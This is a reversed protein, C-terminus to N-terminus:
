SYSLIYMVHTRSYMRPYEKCYYETCVGTCVYNYLVLDTRNINGFDTPGSRGPFEKQRFLQASGLQDSDARPPRMYGYMDALLRRRIPFWDVRGTVETLLLESTDALFGQEAPSNTHIIVFIQKQMGADLGPPLSVVSDSSGIM